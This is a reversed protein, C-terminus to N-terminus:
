KGGGWVINWIRLGTYITIGLLMIGSWQSPFITFLDGLYSYIISILDYINILLGSLCLFISYIISGIDGFLKIFFYLIAYVLTYVAESIYENLGNIWEM